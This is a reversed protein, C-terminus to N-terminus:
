PLPAAAFLNSLMSASGAPRHANYVARFVDGSVTKTATTGYIVVRYLRGSVGRHTLDLRLVTGVSTSPSAALIANLQAHTLKATSWSVGPAGADYAVGNPARDDRGRLYALPSSSIVGSAPVFAAENNETWGGASSHYFANVIVTGSRIVAGPSAIIILNTAMREARVGRYVQSRTDDYVDWTGTTPHLHCLTWSRAVVTQARLAEVPWTTPMEIPVVGRLYDDLGVTNVVSVSSGGLVLTLAGRYLGYTSAKSDLELRSLTNLPRVVVKGAVTGTYLVTTGDAALVRVHWTVVSAGSVIAVTRWAALSANAPFTAAAGGVTIGDVTWDGGRGHLLLPVSISPRFAALVLVRVPRSPNTTGLVASAFYASLITSMSQGALARGRAGWQSMGVGHGNGRGFLQIASGVTTVTKSWAPTPQPTPVPTPTPTPAPPASPGPSPSPTPSPSAVPGPTPTPTVTDPATGTAATPGAATSRGPEPASAAAFAPPVAAVLVVSALLWAAVWRHTGASPTRRGLRDISM